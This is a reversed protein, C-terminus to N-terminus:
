SAYMGSLQEGFPQIIELIAAAHQPFYRRVFDLLRGMVDQAVGLESIRPALKRASSTMKTMADALAVLHDVKEKVPMEPSARIEELLAQAQLVFDEVVSSVVTEIGEGAIVSAARAKDWDDGAGAAAKKWRTLTAGSVGQALAITKLTMRRYIYDARAKRKKEETSAM